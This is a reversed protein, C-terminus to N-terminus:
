ATKPSHRADVGLLSALKALEFPKEILQAQNSDMGGPVLSTVTRVLRASANCSRARTELESVSDPSLQDSVVMADIAHDHLIRDAAEPSDTPFVDFWKSLYTALSWRLLAEPEVILLYGVRGHSPPSSTCGPNSPHETAM